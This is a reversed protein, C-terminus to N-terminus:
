AMVSYQTSNGTTYLLDKSTIKKNGLKGKELSLKFSHLPIDNCM